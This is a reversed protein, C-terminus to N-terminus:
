GQEITFGKENLRELLDDINWWSDDTQKIREIDESIDEIHYCCIQGSTTGYALWEFLMIHPVKYRTLDYEDESAEEDWCIYTNEDPHDCWKDDSIASLVNAIAELRNRYTDKM